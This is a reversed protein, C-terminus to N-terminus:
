LRELDVNLAKAIFNGPGDLIEFLLLTNPLCEPTPELAKRTPDGLQFVLNLWDQELLCVQLVDHLVPVLECLLTHVGRRTHM